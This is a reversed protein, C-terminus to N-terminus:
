INIRIGKIKYIIEEQIEQPVTEYHSFELTETGRGSTQSRLSTVYGFMTSLPVKADVVQLGARSSIKTIEARRRNLDGTVDGIYDNPTVVELNMVPELLV